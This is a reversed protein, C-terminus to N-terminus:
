ENIERKFIYYLNDNTIYENSSKKIRFPHIISVLEWGEKGLNNLTKEDYISTVRKYEFNKM